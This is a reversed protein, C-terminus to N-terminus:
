RSGARSRVGDRAVPVLLPATMLLSGCGSSGATAGYASGAMGGRTTTDDGSDNAPDAWRIHGTVAPYSPLGHAFAPIIVRAVTSITSAHDNTAQQYQVIKRHKPTNTM